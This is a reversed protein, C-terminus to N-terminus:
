DSGQRRGQHAPWEVLIKEALWLDFESHVDLM